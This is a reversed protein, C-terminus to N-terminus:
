AAAGATNAPEHRGAARLRALELTSIHAPPTMQADAASAYGQVQWGTCGLLVPSGGSLAGLAALRAGTCVLTRGTLRQVAMCDAYAQARTTSSYSRLVTIPQATASDGQQQLVLTITALGAQHSISAFLLTGAVTHAAAITDPRM